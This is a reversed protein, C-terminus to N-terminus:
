RNYVKVTCSGSCDISDHTPIEKFTSDSFLADQGVFDQDSFLTTFDTMSGCSSLGFVVMLMAFFKFKM